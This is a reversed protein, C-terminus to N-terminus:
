MDNSELKHTLLCIYKLGDFFDKMANRDHLKLGSVLYFIKFPYLWTVLPNHYDEAQNSNISLHSQKFYYLVNKISFYNHLGDLRLSPIM